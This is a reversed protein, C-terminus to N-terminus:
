TKGMNVEGENEQSLCSDMEGQTKIYQKLRINGPFLTLIILRTPRNIHLYM